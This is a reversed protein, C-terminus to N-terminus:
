VTSADNWKRKANWSFALKVAGFDSKDMEESVPPLVMDRM